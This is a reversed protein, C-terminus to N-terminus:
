EPLPAEVIMFQVAEGTLGWPNLGRTDLRSVILHGQSAHLHLIGDGSEIDFDGGHWSTTDSTFLVRDRGSSPFPGYTARELETLEAMTFTVLPEGDESLFTVPLDDADRDISYRSTDGRWFLSSRLITEDARSLRLEGQVTELTYGDRLVVIRDPEDPENTSDWVNEAIALGDDTASIASIHGNPSSGPVDIREILQGNEDFRTLGDPGNTGIFDDGWPEIQWVTDFQTSESWEDGDFVAVDLGIGYDSLGFIRGDKASITFMGEPLTTTTWGDGTNQWLPTSTQEWRFSDFTDPDLGVDVLDYEDILIGFPGRVTLVESGEYGFDTQLDQWSDPYLEQLVDQLLEWPDEPWGTILTVGGAEAALHPVPGDGIPPLSEPAWTTGDSTRWLTPTGTADLGTALAGNEGPWVGRVEVEPGIVAGLDQWTRDPTQRYARLQGAQSWPVTSDISYVFVSDGLEMTATPFGQGATLTVEWELPGVIEPDASEAMEVPETEAAEEVGGGEADSGEDADADAQEDIPDSPPDDGIVAFFGVLGGLLVLAVLLLWRSPAADASEVHDGGVTTPEAFM